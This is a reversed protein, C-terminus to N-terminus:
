LGELVKQVKMFIGENSFSNNTESSKVLGTDVRKIVKVITVLKLLESENSNKNAKKISFKLLKSNRSYDVIVYYYDHKVVFTGTKDKFKSTDSLANLIPHFDFHNM